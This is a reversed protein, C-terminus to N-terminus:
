RSGTPTWGDAACLQPRCFFYGQFLDCGVEACYEYDERTDLKEALVTVGYRRCLSVERALGAHGLAILDLKVVDALGLLPEAAPTYQFADLAIRHGQHKLDSIAAIFRDDIVRTAPAKSGTLATSAVTPWVCCGTLSRGSFSTLWRTRRLGIRGWRRMRSRMRGRSQCRSWVCSRSRGAARAVRRARGGSSPMM